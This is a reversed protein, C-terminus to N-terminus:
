NLKKLFIFFITNLISLKFWVYFYNMCFIRKIQFEFDFCFNYIFKINLKDIM